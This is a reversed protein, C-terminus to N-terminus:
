MWWRNYGVYVWEESCRHLLVRLQHLKTITPWLYQEHLLLDATSSKFGLKSCRAKHFPLNEGLCWKVGFLISNLKWSLLSNPPVVGVCARIIYVSMRDMYVYLQSKNNMTTIHYFDGCVTLSYQVLAGLPFVSNPEQTATIVVSRHGSWCLVKNQTNRNLSM